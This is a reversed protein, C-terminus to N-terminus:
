MKQVIFDEDKIVVNQVSREEWKWLQQNVSCCKIIDPMSPGACPSVGRVVQSATMGDLTGGIM